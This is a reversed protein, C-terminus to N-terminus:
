NKGMISKLDLYEQCDCSSLFKLRENALNVRKTNFYIEGLKQNTFNNKPDIVLGEQYYIESMTLDGVKYYTFGLYNLIDINDPYEKHASVFYKLAKEFYKNAKKLKNKKEFKSARKIAYIGKKYNSNKVNLFSLDERGTSQAGKNDKDMFAQVNSLLFLSLFLFIVYKIIIM